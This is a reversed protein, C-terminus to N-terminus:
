ERPISRAAANVSTVFGEASPNNFVTSLERINADIDGIDDDIMDQARYGCSSM